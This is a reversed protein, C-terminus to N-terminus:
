ALKMGVKISMQAIKTATSAIIPSLARCRPQAEAGTEIADADKLHGKYSALCVLLKL